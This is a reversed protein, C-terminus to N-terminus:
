RQISKVFVSPMLALLEDWNASQLERLANVNAQLGDLYAAKIHYNSM